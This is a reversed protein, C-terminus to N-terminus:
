REPESAGKRVLAQRLKLLARGYRKRVADHSLELIVAIEAHSLGEVNRMLLVERDLVGLKAVAEAVLRQNERRAASHGAPSANMVFPAALMMSSRDPLPQERRVSRQAAQLHKRRHDIMTQQATKRLWLAFPMPRRKVFDELRRIAQAEAEQMVDSADLRSRLRPDFRLAVARRLGARHRALLEGIAM